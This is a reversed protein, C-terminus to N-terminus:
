NPCHVGRRQAPDADASYRQGQAPLRESLPRMSGNLRWDYIQSFALVRAVYERTEKFPITEIFIDTPLQARQSLWQEVRAPGANYAAAVLWPSSQFRKGVEAVYRTGLRM